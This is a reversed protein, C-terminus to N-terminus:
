LAPRSAGGDAHEWRRCPFRGRHFGAVVWGTVLLVALCGASYVVRWVYMADAWSLMLYLGWLMLGWASWSCFWAAKYRLEGDTRLRQLLQQSLMNMRVDQAMLYSEFACWQVAWVLVCYVVAGPVVYRVNAIITAWTLWTTLVWGIAAATLFVSLTVLFGLAYRVSSGRASVIVQGLEDDPLCKIADAWDAYPDVGPTPGTRLRTLYWRFFHVRQSADCYRLRGRAVVAAAVVPISAAGLFLGLVGWKIFRPMRLLTVGEGSSMYWGAATLAAAGFGLATVIAVNVLVTGLTAEHRCTEHAQKLTELAVQDPRPMYAAPEGDGMAM